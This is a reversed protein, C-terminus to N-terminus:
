LRGRGQALTNRLHSFACACALFASGGHRVGDKRGSIKGKDVADMRMSRGPGLGPLPGLTLAPGGSGRAAKHASNAPFKTMPVPMRRGAPMSFSREAPRATVAAVAPSSISADPRTMPKPAGTKAVSVLVM